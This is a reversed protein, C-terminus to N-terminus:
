GSSPARATPEGKQTTGYFKGDTGQVLGGAPYAGESNDFSVLTTLTGTATLRFRNGGPLKRRRRHHRLNGDAGELLAAGPQAGNTLNFSVLTALLGNTTLRFLTGNGSTGGYSTTGYFNGDAGQVLAASPAGGDAGQFCYLPGSVNFVTLAASPSTVAGYANSIVCRFQDGSDTLQIHNTTYVAQTAGGIARGNRQWAYSLPAAGSANVNFVAAGGVPVFPSIPPRILAPPTTASAAGLRFVIGDGSLSAGNFGQGGYTATGYFFGDDGQM